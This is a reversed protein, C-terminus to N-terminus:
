AHGPRYRPSLGEDRLVRLFALFEAVTSLAAAERRRSRRYGRGTLYALIIKRAARMGPEETYLEIMDLVHREIQDCV